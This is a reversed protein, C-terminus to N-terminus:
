AASATDDNMSERDTQRKAPYSVFKYTIYVNIETFPFTKHL